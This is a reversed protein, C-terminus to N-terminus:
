PCIHTHKCWCCEGRVLAGLRYFVRYLLFWICEEQPVTVMNFHPTIICTTVHYRLYGGQKILKNTKKSTVRLGIGMQSFESAAALIVSLIPEGPVKSLNYLDYFPPHAAESLRGRSCAQECCVFSLFCVLYVCVLPSSLLSTPRPEHPVFCAM